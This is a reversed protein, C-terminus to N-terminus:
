TLPGSFGRPERRALYDTAWDDIARTSPTTALLSTCSFAFVLVGWRCKGLFWGMATRGVTAHGFSLLPTMPGSHFRFDVQSCARKSPVGAWPLGPQAPGAM